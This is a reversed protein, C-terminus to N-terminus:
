TSVAVAANANGNLWDERLCVSTYLAGIMGVGLSAAAFRTLFGVGVFFAGISENLTIWLALIFPLPFGVHAILPTVGISSVPKGAHFAMVYWGIKQIGFTFALLFGAARLLLLGTDIMLLLRPRVNFSFLCLCLSMDATM